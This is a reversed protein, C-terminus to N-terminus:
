PVIRLHVRALYVLIIDCINLLWLDVHTLSDHIIYGM